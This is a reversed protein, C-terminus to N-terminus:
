KSTVGEMPDPNEASVTPVAADIKRSSAHVEKVKKAVERLMPDITWWTSKMLSEHGGEYLYRPPQGLAEWLMQQTASPVVLDSDATLVAIPCGRLAAAAHLPDFQCGEHYGAIFAPDKELGRLMTLPLITTQLVDLGSGGGAIFVAGDFPVRGTALLGVASMVGLSESVVFVPADRLAVDRRRLADIWVVTVEAAMQIVSDVVFGLVVGRKHPDMGETVDITAKAFEFLPPRLEYVLWGEDGLEFDLSAGAMMGPLYICIGMPPRVMNPDDPDSRPFMHEIVSATSTTMWDNPQPADKAVARLVARMDVFSENSPDPPLELEGSIAVVSATGLTFEGPPRVLGPGCGSGVAMSAVVAIVGCAIRWWVGDGPRTWQDIRM